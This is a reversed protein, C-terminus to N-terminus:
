EHRAMTRLNYIRFVGFFWFREPTKLYFSIAVNTLFAKVREHRLDMNFLFWDM